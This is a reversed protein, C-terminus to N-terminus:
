SSSDIDVDFSWLAKYNADLRSDASTHETDETLIILRNEHLYM